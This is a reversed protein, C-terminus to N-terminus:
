SDFFLNEVTIAKTPEVKAQHSITQYLIEMRNEFETQKIKKIKCIGNKDYGFCSTIKKGNLIYADPNFRIFVIPLHNFDQYLECLRRNECTVTYGIHQNEDIEVILVFNGFHCYMDARRKSGCETPSFDYRKDCIWTFEKFREKVLSVVHQEKIKYNRCVPEDPFIRMFCQLCYGRYKKNKSVECGLTQCLVRKLYKVYAEGGCISCRSRYLNHECIQTGRCLVCFTKLINHVCIESGGCTPCRSKRKNHMCIQSGGCILCQAKQKNHMCIQSGGCEKCYNKRKNHMCIQSGKCINCYQKRRDHECIESGKCERCSGKQKNHVCIESGGCTPCRSKRKNHMCKKARGM